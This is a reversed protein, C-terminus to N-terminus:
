YEKFNKLFNNKKKQNLIKNLNTADYKTGKVVISKGFNISFENNLKEEKFTKIQIQKFSLLQNKKIKLNKFIFNNKNERYNFNKFFFQM